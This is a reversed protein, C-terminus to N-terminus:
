QAGVNRTLSESPSDGSLASLPPAADATQRTKLWTTIQGVVAACTAARQPGKGCIDPGAAGSSAVASRRERMFRDIRAAWQACASPSMKEGSCVQTIPPNPAGDPQSRQQSLTAPAASGSLPVVAVPMRPQAELREVPADSPPLIMMPKQTKERAMAPAMLITLLTLAFASPFLAERNM